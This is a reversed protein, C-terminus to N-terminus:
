GAMARAQLLLGSVGRLGFCRIRLAEHGGEVLLHGRRGRRLAIRHVDALALELAPADAQEFRLRRDSIRLRGPVPGGPVLLLARRSTLM